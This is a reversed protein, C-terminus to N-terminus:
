STVKPLDFLINRPINSMTYNLVQRRRLREAEPLIKNKVTNQIRFLIICPHYM